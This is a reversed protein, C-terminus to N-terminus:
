MAMLAFGNVTEGEEIVVPSVNEAYFPEFLRARCEEVRQRAIDFKSAVPLICLSLAENRSYVALEERNIEEFLDDLESASKGLLSHESNVFDTTVSDALRLHLRRGSSLLDKLHDNIEDDM